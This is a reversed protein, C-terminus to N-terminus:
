RAASVSESSRARDCAKCCISFNLPSSTPPRPETVPDRALAQTFGELPQGSSAPMVQGVAHDDRRKQLHPRQRKAHDEQASQSLPSKRGNVSRVREVQCERVALGAVDARTFAVLIQEEFRKDRRSRRYRDYTARSAWVPSSSAGEVTTVLENAMELPPASRM